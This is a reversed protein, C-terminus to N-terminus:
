EPVISSTLLGRGYRAILDRQAPPLASTTGQLIRDLMQQSALQGAAARRGTETGAAALMGAAAPVGVYPKLAGAGIIALRAGTPPARMEFAQSGAKALNRLPGGGGRAYLDAPTNESVAQSLMTPTFGTPRDRAKRVATAVTKYQAYKADAARVATMAPQPLQQDLARTVVDEAEDYLDRLARDRIADGDMRRGADRIISRFQLLDDSELGGKQQSADIIEQLTDKLARAAEKRDPPTLGTRAKQGIADFAKSLPQPNGGGGRVQPAVPVGRAPAYAADFSRFAEDLQDNLTRATGSLPAFSGQQVAVRNFQEQANERANRIVSGVWPVSQLTEEVQNVTGTPNLQGPTLSVGRDLLLQAEPTRRLGQAATRFGASLAPFVMGSLGGTVAGSARNDPGASLFGQTAGEVAGRTIPNGAVRAAAATGRGLAGLGTGIGMTLPTVAAAEGVINGLSGARTDLLAKDRQNADRITQDDVMGAVNGVNRAINFMGRGIGAAFRQGASMGETPSYPGGLNVRGRPRAPPGDEYVVGGTPESDEYVVPM